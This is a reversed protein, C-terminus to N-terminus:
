RELDREEDEFIHIIQKKSTAKLLISRFSDQNFLRFARVLYEVGEETKGKPIGLFICLEIPNGDLAGFDLATSTVGFSACLGSVHESRARPIFVGKGVTTSLIQEREVAEKLVRDRDSIKGSAAALDVLEQTIEDRTKGKLPFGISNLTLLESLM